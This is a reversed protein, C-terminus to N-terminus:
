STSERKSGTSLMVKYCGREWASQLAAHLLRTGIGQRRYEAHTVVNEVLAYPRGGRTLNPIITLVCSTISKGGLRGILDGARLARQLRQAVIQLM